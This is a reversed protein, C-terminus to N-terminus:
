NQILQSQYISGQDELYVFTDIDISCMVTGPVHQEFYEVSVGGADGSSAIIGNLTVVESRPVYIYINMNAIFKTQVHLAFSVLV